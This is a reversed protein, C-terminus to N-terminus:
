PRHRGSVIVGNEYGFDVAHGRDRLKQKNLVRRVHTKATQESIFLHSAIEAHSRGTTLLRM